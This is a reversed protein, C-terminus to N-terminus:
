GNDESREFKRKKPKYEMHIANYINEAMTKGIGDIKLLEKKDALFLEYVSKYKELLAIAKKAGVNPLGEVIYRPRETEDIRPLHRTKWHRMVKDKGMRKNAETIFYVTQAIDNTPIIPFGWDLSISLLAGTVAPFEFKSYRHVDNIDGELILAKKGVSSECMRGMETWITADKLSRILDPYTKRTLIVEGEEGCLYYDGIPLAQVHVDTNKEMLKVVIDHPEANDVFITM